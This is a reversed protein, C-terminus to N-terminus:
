ESIDMERRPLGRTPDIRQPDSTVDVALRGLETAREGALLRASIEYRGSTGLGVCTANVTEMHTDGAELMRPTHLPLASENCSARTGNREVRLSIRMAPLKVEESTGNVLIVALMAHDNASSTALVRGTGVAAWLGPVGEVRHPDQADPAEVTLVIPKEVREERRAAGNGFTVTVSADYTGSLPLVCNFTRDFTAAEGPEVRSADRGIPAEEDCRLALEARTASLNAHFDTVDLTANGRNRVVIRVDPPKAGLLAAGWVLRTTGLPEATIEPKAVAAEAPASLAASRTTTTSETTSEVPRRGSPRGCAFTAGFAICLALVCTVRSRRLAGM